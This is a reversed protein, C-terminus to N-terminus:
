ENYFDKQNDLIASTYSLILNAFVFIVYVITVEGTTILQEIAVGLFFFALWFSLYHYPKNM